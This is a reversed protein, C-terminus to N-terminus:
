EKWMWTILNDSKTMGIKNQLRLSKENDKEVQGFPIFGKEITKAILYLELDTGFGKHRYEPFVYLIGMSGELHEGIFGIPHGQYYGILISERKVVETLEELSILSYNDALMKIDQIDATKITLESNISPKEGYYAVQYCELKGSFGYKKFAVQGLKFNTVILLNCEDNIHKDLLAIGTEIDDCAFFYANSINDRVLLANEMNELIEGSKRKLIRDIGLYDIGTINM